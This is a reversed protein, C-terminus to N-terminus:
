PDNRLQCIRRARGDNGCRGQLQARISFLALHLSQHDRRSLSVVVRHQWSDGFDYLYGFERIANGVLTDLKRGKEALMNLEDLEDSNSYEKDGIQFSHLHSDTWGVAVQLTDHLRPLTIDAPVQLRRWILPAIGELEIRLTYITPSPNRRTAM